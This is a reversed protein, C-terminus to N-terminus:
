KCCITLDQLDKVATVCCFIRVFACFHESGYRGGIAVALTSMLKVFANIECNLFIPLSEKVTDSNAAETIASRFFTLRSYKGDVVRAPFLLGDYQPLLVCPQLLIRHDYLALFLVGVTRM